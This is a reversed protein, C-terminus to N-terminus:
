IMCYVIGSVTAVLAAACLPLWRRVEPRATSARRRRFSQAAFRYVSVDNVLLPGICLIGWGIWLPECPPM